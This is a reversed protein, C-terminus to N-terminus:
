GSAARLLAADGGGLDDAPKLWLQGLDLADLEVHLRHLIERDIVADAAGLILVREFIRVRVFQVGHRVVQDCRQLLSGSSASTTVSWCSFPTASDSTMSRAVAERKPMVGCVM